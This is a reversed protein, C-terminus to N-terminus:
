IKFAKMFRFVSTVIPRVTDILMIDSIPEVTNAKVPRIVNISGAIVVLM